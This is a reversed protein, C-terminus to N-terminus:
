RRSGEYERRVEQLEQRVADPPMPQNTQEDRVVMDRALPLMFTDATFSPLGSLNTKVNRLVRTTEEVRFRPAEGPKPPPFKIEKREFSRVKWPLVQGPLMWLELTEGGRKPTLVFHLTTERRNPIPEDYCAIDFDERLGSASTVDRGMLFLGIFVALGQAQVGQMNPRFARRSVSRGGGGQAAEVEWINRGDVIIINSEELPVPDQSPGRNLLVMRTPAELRLFEYTTQPQKQMGGTKQTILDAEMRVVGMAGSFVGDIAQDTQQPSLQRGQAEGCAAPLVSLALIMTAAIVSRKM